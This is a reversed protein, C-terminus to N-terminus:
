SSGPACGVTWLRATLAMGEGEAAVTDGASPKASPKTQVLGKAAM